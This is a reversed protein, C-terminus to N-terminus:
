KNASHQKVYFRVTQTKAKRKKDAGLIEARVKHEGRFLGAVSFTGSATPSGQPQGDIYLQVLHGAQLAPQLSLEVAVATQGPPITAESLPKAIRVSTYPVEDELAGGESATKPPLPPSLSINTEPLNITEAKAPSEVVVVPM